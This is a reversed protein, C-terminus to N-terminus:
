TNTLQRPAYRKKQRMPADDSRRLANDSRRLANDSRRLANGSKKRDERQMRLVSSLRKFVNRWSV